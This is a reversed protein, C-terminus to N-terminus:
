EGLARGLFEFIEVALRLDVREQLLVVALNRQAAPMVIGFRYSSWKGLKALDAQWPEALAEDTSAHLIQVVVTHLPFTDPTAGMCLLPPM